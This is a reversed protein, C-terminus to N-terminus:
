KHSSDLYFGSTLSAYEPSRDGDKMLTITEQNETCNHRNFEMIIRKPPKTEVTRIQISRIPRFGFSAAVRRSSIDSERPLILSLRGGETLWASAFEFIEALALSHSHRAASLRVDPNRLSNDYYPPNSFILDFKWPAAYESLACHRAHLRDPWPSNAFNSAVEEASPGDIDIAEIQLHPARQAAMLAIIGTGTGIDLAKRDEPLLTMAAGLLVADTGVKLASKENLVSFQKFRFSSAM